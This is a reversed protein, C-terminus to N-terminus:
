ADGGVEHALEALLAFVARIDEESPMPHVVGIGAIVLHPLMAATRARDHDGIARTWLRELFELRATDLREQVERAAPDGVGWARVAREREADLLDLVKGALVGFATEPPAGELEDSLDALVATQDREHRELLARRYDGAGKFHHHFSGKTLGLRSAIRDIRVGAAGQEALVALGEELWRDRTSM